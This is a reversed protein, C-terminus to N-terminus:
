YLVFHNLSTDNGSHKSVYPKNNTHPADYGQPLGPGSYRYIRTCLPIRREWPVVLARRSRTDPEIVYAAARPTAHMRTLVEAESCVLGLAELQWSHGRPALVTRCLRRPARLVARVTVSLAVRFAGFNVRGLATGYYQIPTRVSETMLLAHITSWGRSSSM